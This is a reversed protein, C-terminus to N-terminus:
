VSSTVSTSSTADTSKSSTKSAPVVVSGFYGTKAAGYKELERIDIAPILLKILNATHNLGFQTWLMLYGMGLHIDFVGDLVKIPGLCKSEYTIFSTGDLILTLIMIFAGVCKFHGRDNPQDGKFKEWRTFTDIVGFLGFPVGLLLTGYLNSSAEYCDQYAPIHEGVRDAADKLTLCLSQGAFDIDDAGGTSWGAGEPYMCLEAVTQKVLLLSLNRPNSPSALDIAFSEHV